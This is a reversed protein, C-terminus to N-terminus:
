LYKFTISYNLWYEYIASKSCIISFQLLFPPSLGTDRDKRHPQLFLILAHLVRCTLVRQCIFVAGVVAGNLFIVRLNKWNYKNQTPMLVCLVKKSLKGGGFYKLYLSFFGKGSLLFFEKDIVKMSLHGDLRVNSENLIILRM